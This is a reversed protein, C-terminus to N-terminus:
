SNDTIVFISQICYKSYKVFINAKFLVSFLIKFHKSSYNFYSGGFIRATNKKQIKFGFYLYMIFGGYKFDDLSFCKKERSYYWWPSTSGWVLSLTCCVTQVPMGIKSELQCLFRDHAPIFLKNNITTRHHLNEWWQVSDSWGYVEDIKWCDNVAFM